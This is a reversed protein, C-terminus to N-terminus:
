HRVIFYLLPTLLVADALVRLLAPTLTARTQHLVILGLAALTIVVFHSQWLSLALSFTTLSVAVVFLWSELGYRTNALSFQTSAISFYHQEDDFPKEWLAIFSCNLSVLLAFFFAMLLFVIVQKDLFQKALLHPWFCLTVGASV